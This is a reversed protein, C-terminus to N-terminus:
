REPRMGSGFLVHVAFGGNYSDEEFAGTGGGAKIIVNSILPCAQNSSM